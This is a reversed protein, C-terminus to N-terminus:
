ICKQSNIEQNEDERIVQVDRKKEKM